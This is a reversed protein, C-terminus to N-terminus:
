WGILLSVSRWSKELFASVFVESNSSFRFFHFHKKSVVYCLYGALYEVVCVLTSGTALPLELVVNHQTFSPEVLVIPAANWADNNSGSCCRSMDLSGYKSWPLLSSCEYIRGQGHISGVEYVLLQYGFLKDSSVNRYCIETVYKQLM